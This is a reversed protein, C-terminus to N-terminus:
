DRRCHAIILTIDDNQEGPSFQKLEDVVARVLAEAPLHRHRRLTEVLRQEGFEEGSLSCCETVGDTYLALTDGPYLPREAMACDIKEFLGVVTTTSDLREVSNDGGLLLAPLNGCNAYRLCCSDDDYEAFFLTAYASETTNEYFQRNVSQLMQQPQNVAFACQSRLSAQLSAMLLAAAIGKGVVDGVVLALREQGLNLFDYYDGGVHRAQICVGAYNLTRLPPLAQPFLRAQVQKAIAIEQTARREAEQREAAARREAEFDDFDRRLSQSRAAVAELSKDSLLPCRVRRRHTFAKYAISDCLLVDVFDLDVSSLSPGSDVREHPSGSDAALTADNFQRKWADFDAVPPRVPYQEDSYHKFRPGDKGIPWEMRFEHSTHREGVAPALVGSAAKLIAPSISVMGVVSPHPLQRILAVHPDPRSFELPVIPTSQFPIRRLGSELYWPILLVAGIAKAPNAALTHVFCGAPATGVEQRIEERMLEGMESEPEVILLHDPPEELLRQRLRAALLQLSYGSEQAVHITRNILGEVDQPEAEDKTRELVIHRSGTRKILWKREVLEKYAVSVTNPSIGLQRALSRVSPMVYGAPYDKTGIRFIIQECLQVHVPDESEKNIEIM